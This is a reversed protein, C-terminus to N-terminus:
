PLTPSVVLKDALPGADYLTRLAALIAVSHVAVARAGQEDPVYYYRNALKELNSDFNLGVVKGDRDVVPSGSNGGITDSTFVFNM